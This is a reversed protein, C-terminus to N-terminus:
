INAMILKQIINLVALNDILLFLIDNLKHALLIFLM